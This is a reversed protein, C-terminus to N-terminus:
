SEFSFIEVSLLILCLEGLCGEVQVEARLEMKMGEHMQLYRWQPRHEGREYSM